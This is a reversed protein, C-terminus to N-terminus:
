GAGAESCEDFYCSTLELASVPRPDQSRPSTPTIFPIAKQSAWMGAQSPHWPDEQRWREPTGVLWLDGESGPLRPRTGAQPTIAGRRM